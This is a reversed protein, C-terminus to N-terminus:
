FEVVLIKLITYLRVRIPHLCNSDINRLVRDKTHALQLHCSISIDRVIGRQSDNQQIEEETHQRHKQVVDGPMLSRDALSM